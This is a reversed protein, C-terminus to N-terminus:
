ADAVSSESFIDRVAVSFDPLLDGGSLTDRETLIAEFDAAYVEIIRQSPFILWVLKSGNALYFRAKERMSKVTDTPSQVEVALDPYQMVAGQTVLPESSQRFSVDPIRSNHPDDANRYRTEVLVRGIKHARSYNWLYAFINGAVLGHEETPMKEVLEGEVLELTRDRNQPLRLLAEFAEITLPQQERQRLAM